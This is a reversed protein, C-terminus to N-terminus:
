IAHVHGRNVNSTPLQWHNTAFNDCLSRLEPIGSPHAALRHGPTACKGTRQHSRWTGCAATMLKVALCGGVLDLPKIQWLDNEGEM